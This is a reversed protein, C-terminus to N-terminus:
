THTHTEVKTNKVKRDYTSCKNAFYAIINAHYKWHSTQWNISLDLDLDGHSQRVNHQTRVAHHGLTYASHGRHRQSVTAGAIAEQSLRREASATSPGHKVVRCTSGAGLVRRRKAVPSPRGKAALDGAVEDGLLLFVGRSGRSGARRRLLHGGRDTEIRRIRAPQPRSSLRRRHSQRRPHVRLKPRRRATRHQRQCSM